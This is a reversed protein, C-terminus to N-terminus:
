YITPSSGPSRIEYWRVGAQGGGVDVSHNSVLSEHGDAFRRYALRFMGRDGIGDLADAVGSQPTCGRTGPCLQTFSAPTLNATNTWTTNAPTVWDVHFQYLQIPSGFGQFYNSAG